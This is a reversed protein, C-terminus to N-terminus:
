ETCNDTADIAPNLERYDGIQLISKTHLIDIDHCLSTWDSHKSVAMFRSLCLRYEAPNLHRKLRMVRYSNRNHCMMITCSVWDRIGFLFLLKLRAKLKQRHMTTSQTDHPKPKILIPCDM